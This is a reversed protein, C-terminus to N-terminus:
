CNQKCTGEILKPAEFQLEDNDDTKIIEKDLAEPEKNTINKDGEKEISDSSQGELKMDGGNLEEKAKENPKNEFVLINDDESEM